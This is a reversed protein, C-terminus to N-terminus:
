CLLRCGIVLLSYHVFYETPLVGRLVPLSWHFLWFRLENAKWTYFEKMTHPSPNIVIPPCISLLRRDLFVVKDDIFYSESRQTLWMDLLARVIGLCVVHMYDIAVNDVMNFGPAAILPSVVPLMGRCASNTATATIVDQKMSEHRRRELTGDYPWYQHLHDDGITMGPHYCYCCVAIGNFNKMCLLMARAPLDRTVLVLRARCRQMGRATEFLAGESSLVGIQQILPDLFAQIPPKGPQFWLAYLIVYKVSYRSKPSLERYPISALTFWKEINQFYFSYSSGSTIDSFLSQEEFNRLLQSCFAPNDLLLKLKLKVVLFELPRCVGLCEPHGCHQENEQM